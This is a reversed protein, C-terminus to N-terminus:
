GTVDGNGMKVGAPAATADSAQSPFGFAFIGGNVTGFPRAHFDASDPSRQPPAASQVQLLSHDTTMRPSNLHNAIRPHWRHPIGNDPLKDQVIM